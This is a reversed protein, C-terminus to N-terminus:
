LKELQSNAYQGHYTNNINALLVHYKIFEALEDLDNSNAMYRGEIGEVKWQFTHASKRSDYNSSLRGIYKEEEGDGENNEAIMFCISSGSGGVLLQTELVSVFATVLDFYVEIDVIRPVAYHHELKNRITNIRSLSRKSFIGCKEIFGLKRDIGLNRKKYIKLLNLAHLFIDIQCDVARKLNSVCNVVSQNSSLDSLECEAYELFERPHIEYDPLDVIPGGGTDVRLDYVHKKLFGKVIRSNETPVIIGQHSSVRVGREGASLAICRQAFIPAFRGACLHMANATRHLAQNFSAAERCLLVGM